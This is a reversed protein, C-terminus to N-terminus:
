CCPKLPVPQVNLPLQVKVRLLPDQLVTFLLHRLWSEYLHSTLAEHEPSLAAAPHNFAHIFSANRRRWDQLMKLPAPLLLRM